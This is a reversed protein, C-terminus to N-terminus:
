YDRRQANPRPRGQGITEKGSTNPLTTCEYIPPHDGTNISHEAYSTPEGGPAFIPINRQLLQNIEDGQKPELHRGEDNPLDVNTVEVETVDVQTAM